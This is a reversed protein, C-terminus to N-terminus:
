DEDTDVQHEQEWEITLIVEENIEKIFQASIPHNIERYVGWGLKRRIREPLSTNPAVYLTNEQVEAVMGIHLYDSGVVEKGEDIPKPVVRPSRISPDAEDSNQQSENM